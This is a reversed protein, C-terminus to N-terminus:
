PYFGSAYMSLSFNAVETKASEQIQEGSKAATTKLVTVSQGLPSAESIGVLFRPWLLSLLSRLSSGTPTNEFGMSERGGEKLEWSSREKGGARRESEEQNRRWKRKSHLKGRLGAKGDRRKESLNGKRPPRGQIRQRMEQPLCM